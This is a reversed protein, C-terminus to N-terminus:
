NAGNFLQQHKSTTFYNTNEEDENNLFYETSRCHKMHVHIYPLANITHMANTHLIRADNKARLHEHIRIHARASNCAFTKERIGHAFIIHMCRPAGAGARM